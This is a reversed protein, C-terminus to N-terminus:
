PPPSPDRTWTSVPKVTDIHANLLITPRSDDWSSSKILLNNGIREPEYGYSHMAQEMIDAAASEDRSISPTAILQKLLAVADNVYQDITMTLKKNDNTKCLYYIFEYNM